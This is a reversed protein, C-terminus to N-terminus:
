INTYSHGNIVNSVASYSANFFESLEKRSVKNNLFRMYKIDSVSFMCRGIHRGQAHMHKANESYTCWELNWDKNNSPNSDKHNICPKRESNVIFAQAVLRHVKYTKRISSKCLGVTLYEVGSKKFIGPSLIISKQPKSFARHTKPLSLIRGMNSVQYLGEYDKIDRWMEGPLNDVM